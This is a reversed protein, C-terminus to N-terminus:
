DYVKVRNGCLKHLVCAFKQQFQHIDQLILTTHRTPVHPLSSSLQQGAMELM